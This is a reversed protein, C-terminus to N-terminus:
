RKLNYNLIQLPYAILYAFICKMVSICFVAASAKLKQRLLVRNSTTGYGQSVSKIHEIQFTSLSM